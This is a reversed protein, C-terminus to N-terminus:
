DDEWAYDLLFKNINSTSSGNPAIIGVFSIPTGTNLEWTGSRGVRIPERNICMLTGPRTQIGIKVVSSIPLINNITCVDGNQDFNINTRVDDRPAAGLYDYNTRSLVFGLYTYTDNPTFVIEYSFYETNVGQIYPDVSISSEIIQYTGKQYQGDAASGDNKFLQLKINMQRPDNSDNTMAYESFRPDDSAIRKITFRVYYTNGSVFSGSALKIAYDSFNKNTYGATIVSTASWSLDTLYSTSSSKRLQNVKYSM